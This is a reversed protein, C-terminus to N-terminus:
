YLIEWVSKYGNISEIFDLFAAYYPDKGITSSDGVIYLKEKARTMAVNMRRYDKLFGINGENNSRVLSLIIISKEQGQFSDITSIRVSKPFVEKALAVQGSYPSIIALKEPELSEHEILKSIIDIEGQNMLSVGDKGHEEDFGAGATDYFYVHDGNTMLHEPTKLKGEYFYRNSFEAISERMRYQTDLLYVSNVKMFAQELISTSLGLRAAKDSIVTPPLQNHDGALVVKEALPIICWALPELCQGAEDIILTDFQFQSVMSDTLGIPTGLIVKSKEFLVEENHVQLSKIEKRISKVEKILLNRQEREEKGFKRLLYRLAPSYAQRLLAFETLRFNVM